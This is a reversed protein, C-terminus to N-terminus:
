KSHMSWLDPASVEVWSTLPWLDLVWQPLPFEKWNSLVSPLLAPTPM